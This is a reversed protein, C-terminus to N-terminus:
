LGAAAVRMGSTMGLAARQEITNGVKGFRIAMGLAVVHSLAGHRWVLRAAEIAPRLEQAMTVLEETIAFDSTMLAREIRSVLAALAIVAPSTNPTAVLDSYLIRASIDVDLPTIDRM